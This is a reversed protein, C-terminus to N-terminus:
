LAVHDQQCDIWGSRRGQQGMVAMDMGSRPSPQNRDAGRAKIDSERGQRDRFVCESESDVLGNVKRHVRTIGVKSGFTARENVRRFVSCLTQHYLLRPTSRHRRSAAPIATLDDDLAAEGGFVTVLARTRDTRSRKPFALQIGGSDAYKM